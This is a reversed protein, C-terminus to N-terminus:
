GLVASCSPVNYVRNLSYLIFQCCKKKVWHPRRTTAVQCPIIECPISDGADGSKVPEFEDTWNM